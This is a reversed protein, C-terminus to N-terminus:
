APLYSTNIVAGYDPEAKLLGLQAMKAGIARAQNLRTEDFDWVAGVDPLVAEFVAEEYGFQDVLLERWVARDNVGGPSLYEAAARQMSTAARILEPKDLMARSAWIASNLDGAPTTYPNITAVGDGAAIARGPNPESGLFADIDGRALATPQDNYPLMVLTVDRDPQLGAQDLVSLLLLYQFSPGFFGVRKGRLDEPRTFGSDTAVVLGAGKSAGMAVVTSGNGQEREVFGNVLGFLAFDLDGRELALNMESGSALTTVEVTLGAPAFRPWFLPASAHNKAFTAVRIRGGAVGSATSPAVAEGGGTDQGCGALAVTALGLGAAQIIHRRSPAARPM